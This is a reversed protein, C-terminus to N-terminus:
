RKRERENTDNYSAISNSKNIMISYKNNIRSLTSILEASSIKMMKSIEDISEYMSIKQIIIMDEPSIRSKIEDNSLSNYYIYKTNSILSNILTNENQKPNNALINIKSLIRNIDNKVITPQKNLVLAIDLISLENGVLGFYLAIENYEDKTLNQAVLIFQEYSIGNLLLYQELRNSIKKNNTQNNKIEKKVNDLVKNVKLNLENIDKKYFKSLQEESLKVGNIGFYRMLLTRDEVSLKKLANAFEEKKIKNKNLFETLSIMHTIKVTKPKNYELIKNNSNKILKEVMLTSMSYKKSIEEITLASIYLGFYLALINKSLMDLNRYGNFFESKTIKNKLLFKNFEDKEKKIQQKKQNELKNIVKKSSDNLIKVMRQNKLMDEKSLMLNSNLDYYKSIVKNEIGDLSGIAEKLEDKSVKNEEIYSNLDNIKLEIKENKYIDGNEIHKVIKKKSKKIIELLEEKPLYMEKCIKDLDYPKEILGFYLIMIKRYDDDLLNIAKIIDEKELKYELMFFKLRLKKDIIKKFNNKKQLKKNKTNVKKVFKIQKKEIPKAIEKKIDDKKLIPKAEKKIPEIKKTVKVKKKEKQLKPKAIAKKVVNLKKKPKVIKEKNANMIQKLTTVAKKFNEDKIKPNIKKELKAGFFKHLIEKTNFDTKGLMEYIFINPINNDRMIYKFYEYFDYNKSEFGYISELISLIDAENRRKLIYVCIKIFIDNIATNDTNIKIEKEGNMGFLEIFEEKDEYSLNKVADLIEDVYFSDLFDYLTGKEIKKKEKVKSLMMYFYFKEVEVMDNIDFDFYIRRYEDYYRVIDDESFLKLIDNDKLKIKEKNITLLEFINELKLNDSVSYLEVHDKLEIKTGYYKKLLEFSNNSMFLLSFYFKLKSDFEPIKLDNVFKM